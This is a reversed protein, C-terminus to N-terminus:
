RANFYAAEPHHLILASTSQEPHLQFEESVEVGIRSIDLLDGLPKQAELDPCASYGFSFREGRYGQKLLGEVTPADDADIGLEARVRRHWFEAMAETMEVGLGHLYLYDTYRNEAFLEAARRSVRPGM